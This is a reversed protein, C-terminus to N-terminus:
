QNRDYVNFCPIGKYDFNKPNRRRDDKSHFFYCKENECSEDSCEKIKYTNVDFNQEIQIPIKPKLKIM